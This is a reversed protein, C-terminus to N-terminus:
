DCICSVTICHHSGIYHAFCEYTNCVFYPDLMYDVIYLQLKKTQRDTQVGGRKSVVMPGCGFKACMNPNIHSVNEALFFKGVLM